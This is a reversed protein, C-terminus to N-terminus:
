TTKVKVKQTGDFQTTSFSGDGGKMITKKGYKVFLSTEMNGANQNLILM